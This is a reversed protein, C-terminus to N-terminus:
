AKANPSGKQLLKVISRYDIQPVAGFRGEAYWQNFPSTPTVKKKDFDDLSYFRSAGEAKEALWIQDRRMLEPSMLNINHTTFILQARGSNVESDNFLKIILEAMFPHMSNDLEDIILVRGTEFASIILSALDFMKLTGASVSAREFQEMAGKESRHSFLVQRSHKRGFFEKIKTPISEPINLKDADIDKEKLAVGAVGTDLFSLLLSVKELKDSKELMNLGSLDLGSIDENPGLYVIDRLIFNYVERIMEPADASDGAKSLYCQNKFFPLRRTGGKYLSGFKITEWTDAETREFVLAEKATQFLSLREEVIQQRTFAVRYRFRTGSQTVFEIEFFTPEKKTKESLRYPMHSEIPDGDKLSGTQTVLYKMVFFAVLLNSKGSANAGYIGISKLTPINGSAPPQSLNEVLHSGPNEAYLSFTQEDRISRFNAVTFEIIM